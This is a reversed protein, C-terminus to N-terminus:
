KEKILKYKLASKERSLLQNLDVQLNFEFWRLRVKMLRMIHALPGATKLSFSSIDETPIDGQLALRFVEILKSSYM